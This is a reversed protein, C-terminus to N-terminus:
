TLCKFGELSDPSPVPRIERAPCNRCFYVDKVPKMGDFITNLYIMKHDPCNEAM